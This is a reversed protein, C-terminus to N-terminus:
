LRASLAWRAGSRPSRRHACGGDIALFRSMAGDDGFATVIASVPACSPSGGSGRRRALHRAILRGSRGRRPRRRRAIRLQHWRHRFQNPDARDRGDVGVIGSGDGAPTTTSPVKPRPRMPSAAPRRGAMRTPGSAKRASRPTTGTAGGAVGTPSAAASRQQWAGIAPGTFSSTALWWGAFLGAVAALAVYPLPSTPKPAPKAFPVLDRLRRADLGSLDLRRPDLSRLDLDSLDVKPGKVDRLRFAPMHVDPMHVDPMHVNPMHMDLCRCRRCRCTACRRRCRLRSLDVDPMRDRLDIDPVKLYALKGDRFRIDPLKIDPLSIEPM